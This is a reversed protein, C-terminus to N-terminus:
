RELTGKEARTRGVPVRTRGARIQVGFGIAAGPLARAKLDAPFDWLNASVFAQAGAFLHNFVLLVLWNELQARKNALSDAEVGIDEQYRLQRITKMTMALTLGEWFVFAAGFDQEGLVAQGLGPLLM